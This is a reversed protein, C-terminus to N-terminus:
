KPETLSSSEVHAQIPSAPLNSSENIQNFITSPQPLTKKLISKIPPKPPLRASEPSSWAKSTKNINTAQIEVKM